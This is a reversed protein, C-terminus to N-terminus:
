RRVVASRREKCNCRHERTTCYRSLMDALFLPLDARRISGDKPRGRYFRGDLESLKWAIDLHDEGVCKTTLGVAESWRMRTYALAIVMVFDTESESLAACREALLLAQLEAMLLAQLPTPWAKEAHNIRQIRRQPRADRAAGVSPLILPYTGRCLTALHPAGGVSAQRQPGGQPPM